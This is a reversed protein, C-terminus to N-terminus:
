TDGNILLNLAFHSLECQFWGHEMQAICEYVHNGLNEPDADCGNPSFYGDEPFPNNYTPEIISVSLVENETAWEWVDKKKM